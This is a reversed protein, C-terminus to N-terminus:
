QITEGETLWDPGPESGVRIGLLEWGEEAALAEAEEWSPLDAYAFDGADFVFTM